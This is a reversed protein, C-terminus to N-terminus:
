ILMDLTSLGHKRNFAQVVQLSDTEVEVKNFGHSYAIQLAWCVALAEVIDSSFGGRVLKSAAIIVSGNISRFVVGLRWSMQNQHGVDTNLKLHGRSPPKWVIPSPVSSTQMSKEQIHVYDTLLQFVSVVAEQPPTARSNFQLDNRKIWIGWCATIILELVDM